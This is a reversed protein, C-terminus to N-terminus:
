QIWLLMVIKVKVPKLTEVDRTGVNKELKEQAEM